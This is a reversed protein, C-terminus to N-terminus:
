AATQLNNQAPNSLGPPQNRFDAPIRILSIALNGHRAPSHNALPHGNEKKTPSTSIRFDAKEQNTRTHCIVRESFSEERMKKILISPLALYKRAKDPKSLNKYSLFYLIL